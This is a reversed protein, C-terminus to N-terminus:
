VDNRCENIDEMKKIKESFEETTIEVGKDKWIKYVCFSKALSIAQNIEDEDVRRRIPHASNRFFRQWYGAMGKRGTIQYTKKDVEFEVTNGTIQSWVLIEVSTMMM